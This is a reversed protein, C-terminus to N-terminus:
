TKTQGSVLRNYNEYCIHSGVEGDLFSCIIAVLKSATGSKTDGANDTSATGDTVEGSVTPDSSDTSVSESADVIDLGYINLLDFLIQLSTM